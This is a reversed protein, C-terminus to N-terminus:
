LITKSKIEKVGLIPVTSIGTIISVPISIVDLIPSAKPPGFISICTVVAEACGQPSTPQPSPWHPWDTPVSIPIPPSSTATGETSTSTVPIANFAFIPLKAIVPSALIDKVPIANSIWCTWFSWYSSYM